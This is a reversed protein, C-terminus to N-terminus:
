RSTGCVKGDPMAAATMYPHNGIRFFLDEAVDLVIKALARITKNLWTSITGALSTSRHVTLIKRRSTISARHSLFLISSKVSGETSYTTTVIKFGSKELIKELTSPSFHYLHRPIELGFWKSGFLRAEWSGINPAGILLLGDHRLIRRVELLTGIPDPMHELVDWMTVVDASHDPFGAEELRGLFVDLGRWAKAYEVCSKDIEVGQVDYGRGQMFDLFGGDSCGIDLIRGARKFQFVQEYRRRFKLCDDRSQRRVGLVSTYYEEPYYGKLADLSPRPNTYILGCNQCVVVNFSVQTNFLYDQTVFLPRTQDNGCLNCITHELEVTEQPDRSTM